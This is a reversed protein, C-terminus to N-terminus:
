FVKQFFPLLIPSAIFNFSNSIELCQVNCNDPISSFSCKSFDANVIRLEILYEFISLDSWNLLSCNGLDLTLYRIGKIEDYVIVGDNDKDLKFITDDNNYVGTNPSSLVKLFEDSVTVGELKCLGDNSDAYSKINNLCLFSALLLVLFGIVNYKKMTKRM